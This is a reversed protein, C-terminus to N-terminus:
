EVNVELTETSGKEAKIFYTGKKLGKVSITTEYPKLAQAAMMGSQKKGIVIITIENGQIKAKAEALKWSLNSFNGSVVIKLKDGKKLKAPATFRDIRAPRTIEQGTKNKRKSFVRKFFNM